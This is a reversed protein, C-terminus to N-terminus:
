QLSKEVEAVIAEAMKQNASQQASKSKGADQQEFTIVDYGHANKLKEVAEVTAGYSRTACVIIECGIKVFDALSKPLRGPLPDGQSEIGITIGNITILVKVDAGLSGALHEVKADRYKAVLLEYVSIITQSKGKKAVGSLAIVQKM